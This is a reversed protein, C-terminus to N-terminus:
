FTDLDIFVPFGIFRGQNLVLLFSTLTGYSSSLPCMSLQCCSHFRPIQYLVLSQYRSTETLDGALELEQDM